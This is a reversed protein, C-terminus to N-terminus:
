RIWRRLGTAPMHWHALSVGDTWEWWGNHPGLEIHFSQAPMYGEGVLVFVQHQAIAVDLLVIVHGPSGPVVILDGPQPDSVAVTDLELSRTGAWMFVKSLYAEWGGQTGERWQLRGNVEFPRYGSRWRDWSIPDGSTAHFMVEANISELYEARLRIASDACQQLNGAVMPLRIVRAHHAVIDGRHTRVPEHASALELEGLWVSFEDEYLRIAGSPPVFVERITQGFTLTTLLSIMFM